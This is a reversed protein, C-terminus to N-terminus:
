WQGWIIVTYWWQYVKGTNRGSRARWCLLSWNKGCYARAGWPLGRRATLPWKLQIWRRLHLSVAGCGYAGCGYLGSADTWMGTQSEKEIVIHDREMIGYFTVVMSSRISIVRQSPHSPTSAQHRGSTWVNTAYLNKWTKHRLKRTSPSGSVVGAWAKYM